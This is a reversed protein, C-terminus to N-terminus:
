IFNSYFICVKMLIREDDLLSSVKTFKNCNDKPFKRRKLWNQAWAHICRAKYDRWGLLSAITTSANIKNQGMNRLRLYQLSAQLRVRTGKNINNNDKKLSGDLDEIAQWLKAKKDVDLEISTDVVIPEVETIQLETSEVETLEVKESEVETSEYLETLLKCAFTSALVINFNQSYMSAPALYATISQTNQATKRLEAKKRRQTKKSGRVYISSRGSFEWVNNKSAALLIAFYDSARKDINRDLWIYNDLNKYDSM